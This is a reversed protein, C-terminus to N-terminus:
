LFLPRVWSAKGDFLNLQAPALISIRGAPHNRPWRAPRAGVGAAGGPVPGEWGYCWRTDVVEIMACVGATRAVTCKDRRGDIREREIKGIALLRRTPLCLNGNILPGTYPDHDLDDVGAPAGERFSGRGASRGLRLKM